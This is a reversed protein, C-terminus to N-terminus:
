LDEPFSVVVFLDDDEVIETFGLVVFGVYQSQQVTMREDDVRLMSRLMKGRRSDDNRSVLVRVFPVTSVELSVLSLEYWLKASTNVVDDFYSIRINLNHVICAFHACFTKSIFLLHNIPFM